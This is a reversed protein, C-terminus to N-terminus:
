SITFGSFGLAKIQGEHHDRRIQGIHPPGERLWGKDEEKGQEETTGRLLHLCKLAPVHLSTLLFRAM